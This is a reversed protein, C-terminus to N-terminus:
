NDWFGVSRLSLVAQEGVHRFHNTVAAAAGRGDGARIAAIIEDHEDFARERFDWEKSGTFFQSPMNNSLIRLVTILRRSGGSKNILRHFAFNLRDLERPDTGARMQASIAMLEELLAPDPRSATRAAAVGSLAGYMAFHDLIDEPELAAVFVGRRVVNVVMGETELTILAERVPLRSVGLSAALADQDIREGPRMSGSFIADRLQKAVDQKLNQRGNPPAHEPLATVTQEKGSADM